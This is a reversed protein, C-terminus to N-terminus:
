EKLEERLKYKEKSGLQICTKKHIVRALCWADHDKKTGKRIKIQVVPQGCVGKGVYHVEKGCETKNTAM